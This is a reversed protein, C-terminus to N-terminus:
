YLYMSLLTTAVLWLIFESCGNFKKFHIKCLDQSSWTHRLYLERSGFKWLLLWQKNIQFNLLDVSHKGTMAYKQCFTATLLNISFKLHFVTDREHVPAYVAVVICVFYIYCFIHM